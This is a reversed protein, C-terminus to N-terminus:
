PAFKSWALAFRSTRHREQTAKSAFDWALRAVSNQSWEPESIEAWFLWLVGNRVNLGLTWELCRPSSRRVVRYEGQLLRLRVLRHELRCRLMSNKSDLTWYARTMRILLLTLGLVIQHLAVGTRDILEILKWISPLWKRLVLLKLLM